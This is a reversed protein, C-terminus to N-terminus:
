EEDSPCDFSLQHLLITMELTSMDDGDFGYLFEMDDDDDDEGGWRRNELSWLHESLRNRRRPPPPPSRHQIWRYSGPEVTHKYFCISGFPCNGNGSDFHKCDILRLRAKYNNIISEKEEDSTYWINSPIVFYSLKRCIPCCRSASNVHMGSTSYSRRWNRICTVCFPHNCESLIGFRREAITPKSLVRDFCINCEIEESIKIAELQKQKKEYAKRQEEEQPRDPCLSRRGWSSSVGNIDTYNGGHPYTGEAVLSCSSGQGPREADSDALGGDYNCNCRESSLPTKSTSVHADTSDISGLTSMSPVSLPMSESVKDKLAASSSPAGHSLRCPISPGNSSSDESGLSSSSVVYSTSGSLPDQTVSYKDKSLPCVLSSSPVDSSQIPKVHEYRCRSGYTCIGKQYYCCVNHSSARREHLFECADGKYCIGRSYYKCQTTRRSMSM